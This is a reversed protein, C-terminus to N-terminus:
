ISLIVVCGKLYQIAKRFLYKNKYCNVPESKLQFFLIKLSAVTNESDAASINLTPSFATVFLILVNLRHTTMFQLPSLFHLYIEVLCNKKM